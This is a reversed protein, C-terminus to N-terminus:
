ARQRGIMVMTFLGIALGWLILRPRLIVVLGVAAAGWLVRRPLRELAPAGFWIAGLIIAARFALQTWSPDFDVLLGVVGGVLFALAAFGMSM